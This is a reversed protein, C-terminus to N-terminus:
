GLCGVGVCPVFCVTSHTVDHHMWPVWSSDSFSSCYVRVYGNIGWDDCDKKTKKKLKTSHNHFHCNVTCATRDGTVKLVFGMVITDVGNHLTVPLLPVTQDLCPRLPWELRCSCKSSFIHKQTSRSEIWKKKHWVTSVFDRILLQARGWHPRWRQRVEAPCCQRHHAM